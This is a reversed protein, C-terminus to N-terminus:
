YYDVFRWYSLNENEFSEMDIEFENTLYKLKRIIFETILTFLIFGLYTMTIIFSTFYYDYDIKFESNKYISYAFGGILTSYWLIISWFSNLFTKKKGRTGWEM